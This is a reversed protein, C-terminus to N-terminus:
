TKINKKIFNLIKIKNNKIYKKLINNSTKILITNNIFNIIYYKKHLKQPIIKDLNKKFLKIKKQKKYLYSTTIKKKILNIILIPKNNPM